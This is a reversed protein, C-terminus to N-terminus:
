EKPNKSIKKTPPIRIKSFIPDEVTNVGDEFGKEYSADLMEALEEETLTVKGNQKEDIFIFGAKCLKM